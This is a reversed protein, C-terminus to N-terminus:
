NSTSEVNEKTAKKNNLLRIFPDEHTMHQKIIENHIQRKREYESARRKLDEETEKNRDRLKSIKTRFESGNCSYAGKMNDEKACNRYATVGMLVVEGENPLIPDYIPKYDPYNTHRLHAYTNGSNWKNFKDENCILCDSHGWVDYDKVYQIHKQRWSDFNGKQNESLIDRSFFDTQNRFSKKEEASLLGELIKRLEERKIDYDKFRNNPLNDSKKNLSEEKVPEKKRKLKSFIKDALNKFFKM